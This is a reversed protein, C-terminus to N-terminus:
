WQGDIFLNFGNAKTVYADSMPPQISTVGSKNTAVILTAISKDSCNASDFVEIKCNNPNKTCAQALNKHSIVKISHADVVGINKSCVNAIKFSLVNKSTNAIKLEDALAVSSLMSLVLVGVLNKTRFKLM